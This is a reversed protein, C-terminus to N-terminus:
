NERCEELVIRIKKGYFNLLRRFASYQLFKGIEMGEIIRAPLNTRTAVTRLYLRRANREQWLAYGIERLTQKDIENYYKSM